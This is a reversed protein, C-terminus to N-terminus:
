EEDGSLNDTNINKTRRKDEESKEKIIRDNSRRLWNSVELEFEELPLQKVQKNTKMTQLMCRYLSLASLDKKQLRSKGKACYCVIVEDAISGKLCRQVYHKMRPSDCGKFFIRLQKITNPDQSM